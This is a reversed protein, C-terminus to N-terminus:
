LMLVAPSSGTVETSSCASAQDNWYFAVQASMARASLLEAYARNQSGTDWASDIACWNPCSKDTTFEIAGNSIIVKTVDEACYAGAHAAPTSIVCMLALILVRTM